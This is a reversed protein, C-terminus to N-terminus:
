FSATCRRYLETKAQDYRGGQEACGAEASEFGTYPHGADDQGNFTEVAGTCSQCGGWQRQAVDLIHRFTHWSMKKNIRLKRAAPQIYDRMLSCLWVPQKGRNTGARNADSRAIRSLTSNLSASPSVSVASPICPSISRASESLNLFARSRSKCACSDSPCRFSFHQDNKTTESEM